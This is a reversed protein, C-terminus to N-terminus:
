LDICATQHSATCATQHSKRQVFDRQIKVSRHMRDSAIKKTCFSTTDKCISAHPRIRHPANPVNYNYLDTCAAQHSATCATPHSKRQVFDRQTKVSRHMRDSAIRHMCDSAIKRQVFDRQIKVSRHMRDSAIRHMRDSGHPFCCKRSIALGGAIYCVFFQAIECGRSLSLTPM